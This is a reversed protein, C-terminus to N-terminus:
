DIREIDVIEATVKEGGFGGGAFEDYVELKVNKLTVKVNVLKDGGFISSEDFNDDDINGIYWMNRVDSEIYEPEFDHNMIRNLNYWVENRDHDLRVVPIGETKTPDVIFNLEGVKSAYDNPNTTAYLMGEITIERDLEITQLYTLNEWGLVPFMDFQAKKVTLGCDLKDGERVKFWEMEPLIEREDDEIHKGTYFYPRAYRIYAFDFTFMTDVLTVMELTEVTQDYAKGGAEDKVADLADTMLVTEGDPGVFSQMKLGSIMELQEDSLRQEPVSTSETTSESNESSDSSETNETTSEPASVGTNEPGSDSTENNNCGTLATLLALACIVATLKKM